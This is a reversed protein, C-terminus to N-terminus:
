EVFSQFAEYEGYVWNLPDDPEYSDYSAAAIKGDVFVALSRDSYGGRIECYRQDAVLCKAAAKLTRHTHGCSGRVSGILKYTVM